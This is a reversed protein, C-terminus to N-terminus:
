APISLDDPAALSAFEVWGADPASWWHLYSTSATRDHLSCRWATAGDTARIIAPHDGADSRLEHVARAPLDQAAGSAVEACAQIVSGLLLDELRRLDELFGGGVSMGRLPHRQRAAEDFNRAYAVRVAQLFAPGHSRPDPESSIREELSRRRAEEEALARRALALRDRAQKLQIVLFAEVELTSELETALSAGGDPRDEAEAPVPDRVQDSATGSVDDSRTPLPARRPLISDLIWGRVVRAQVESHIIRLPHTRPECDPDVRPWWIRVAGGYVDLQRPLAETLAWTAEGTELFVVDAHGCLARALDGPEIWTGGTGLITTVAVIPQTRDPSLIVERAFRGSEEPGLRRYTTSPPREDQPELDREEDRPATM